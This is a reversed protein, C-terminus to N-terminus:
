FFTSIAAPLFHQSRVPVQYAFTTGVYGNRAVELLQAPEPAKPEVTPTQRSWNRVGTRLLAQM